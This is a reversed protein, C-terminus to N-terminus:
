KVNRDLMGFYGICRSLRVFAILRRKMSIRRRINGLFAPLFLRLEREEHKTLQQGSYKAKLYITMFGSFGTGFERDVLRAYQWYTKETKPQFVMHAYYGSCRYAWYAEAQISSAFAYRARYYWFILRPLFLLIALILLIAMGFATLLRWWVTEREPQGHPAKVQQADQYQKKIHLEDIPAPYPFHEVIASANDRRGSPPFDKFAEAYSVATASDGAHVNRLAIYASDKQISAVSLDMVMERRQKLHYERDHFVFHEFSLSAKKHLTDVRIIVGDAALYAKPPQMPPTGDPQPSQRADDNGVTTDFDLWGYGPFYVQVWAHAQDAYFWYWGKNNSSRDVTMFGVTIRSPIGIARLLFLTAGAYYACYGKHSEFLFYKLRSANPIDPIGPNDTYSFVPKGNADKALFFDRVALVKDVPLISGKAISDALHRIRRFQEGVPMRTYYRLLEPDVGAYGKVQRLVQFRQEQFQRIVPDPANYVFYASNLESIYSKARYASKFKDKFDKEITIPQVFFALSPAVFSAPSLATKYVEVDVTGRLKETLADKLVSSDTRTSFLPISSPNPEFLDNHPLLSDREFTQTATDFRSYYFATMYLPNPVDSKPFFHDIHAAFLLQNSRGLSGSLQSYQKLDFTNDKNKQLMSNDGEKGGGGFEALTERIDQKQFYLVGSLLLAALVLFSVLRKFLSRWVPGDYNRYRYILETTFIIYICYLVAPGFLLAYEKLGAAKNFVFFLENQRSLLVVCLLLFVASVLVSFYRLQTFGWGIFWGLTFLIAFVLFQVSIFFTDFEGVSAADISKYALYLGAILLLVTPLFRFRFHYFLAAGLMGLGLFVTQRSAQNKLIVVYFQNANWLLFFCLLLTPLLM